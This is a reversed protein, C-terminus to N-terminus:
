SNTLQLGIAGIVIAVPYLDVGDSVFSPVIRLTKIQNLYLQFSMDLGPTSYWRQFLLKDPALPRCNSFLIQASSDQFDGEAFCKKAQRIILNYENIGERERGGERKEM